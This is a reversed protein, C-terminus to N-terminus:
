GFKRCVWALFICGIYNNVLLGVLPGFRFYALSSRVVAPLENYYSQIQNILDGFGFFGFFSIAFDLSTASFNKYFVLIAGLVAVNLVVAAIMRAVIGSLLFTALLRFFTALLPM